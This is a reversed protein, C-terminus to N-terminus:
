LKSKDNNIWTDKWQSDKLLEEAKPYVGYMPAWPPGACRAEEGAAGLGAGQLGRHSDQANEPGQAADM